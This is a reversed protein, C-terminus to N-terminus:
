TAESLKRTEEQIWQKLEDETPMPLNRQKRYSIAKRIRREVRLRLAAEVDYPKRDLCSPKRSRRVPAEEDEFPSLHGFAMGMLMPLINVYHSRQM